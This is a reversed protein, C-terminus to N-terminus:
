STSKNRYCDLNFVCFIRRCLFLRERKASAAASESLFCTLYGMLIFMIMFVSAMKWDKRFHFYIGLLGLILPIAFLSDKASGDFRINFIKGVFSGVQNFPAINAGDDQNWGERGAYNWLWYRTMMHNMQYRWFFDLDSTYGTYVIQQHPETAFRRKFVPFDGYQERNLYSVLETFTNPENENMPPNQNSRIIVM